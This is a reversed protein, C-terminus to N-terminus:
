RRGRVRDYGDIRRSEIGLALRYKIAVVLSGFLARVWERVVIDVREVM